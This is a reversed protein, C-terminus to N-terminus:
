LKTVQLLLLVETKDDSASSSRMFKPLFSQGSGSTMTKDQTLGGLVILEGDRASVTTTLSRKTLTPSNNVGSRTSAFDSIQQDVIMDIGGERVTPSLGLIVGSARYEISQVPAAGGQPYSIAGITPVEQGVMLQARQGSKVRVTPTSVVKFRSDGKFLSFVADISGTNLTISNGPALPGGISVGVRGGMMSLALSFASSDSTGTAVEYVVAKVMVEGASVDVQSLIAKLKSIDSKSGQFLLMDSDVNIAGAASSPPADTPVKELVSSARVARQTGFSGPKFVAGLLDVLYAVPRYQPRYVFVDREELLEHSVPKVSVFDVGGRNVVVLGLSDLFSIWFRRVDGSSSDYRFSVIRSDQVVAPDIVYPSDIMQMYALLIVQSVTVGQFDFKVPDRVSAAHVPSIALLFTVVVAILARM